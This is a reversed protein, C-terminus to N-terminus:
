FSQHKIGHTYRDTRGGRQRARINIRSRLLYGYGFVPRQSLASDISALATEYQGKALAARAAFFDGSCDDYNEQRATQVIKDAIEWNKKELAIDFLLGEQGAGHCMM